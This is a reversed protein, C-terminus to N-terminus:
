RASITAELSWGSVHGTSVNRVRSIFAYTGAGLTPVFATGAASVGAQWPKWATWTKSGAKEFRSQVDFVYGSIPSSSWTITFAATTTGSSPAVKLPVAVAGAFLANDKSATSRYAYTGAAQFVHGYSGALLAASAFWPAKAPGLALLDTVSHARAGAFTWQVVGGQNVMTLLPSYGTDTVKVSVPKILANWQSATGTLVTVELDSSGNVPLYQRSAVCPDPAIATGGAGTSTCPQVVTTV